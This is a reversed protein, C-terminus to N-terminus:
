SPQPDAAQGDTEQPTSPDHQGRAIKEANVTLASAIALLRGCRNEDDEVAAASRWEQGQARLYDVVLKREGTPEPVNEARELAEQTPSKPVVRYHCACLCNDETSCPSGCHECRM